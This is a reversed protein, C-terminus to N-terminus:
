SQSLVKPYTHSVGEAVSVRCQLGKGVMEAHMAKLKQFRPDQDGVFLWGRLGRGSGSPVLHPWEESGKLSISLSQSVAIFGRCPVRKKLALYIAM